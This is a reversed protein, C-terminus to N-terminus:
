NCREKKRKKKFSYMKEDAKDMIVKYSHKNNKDIKIVGHSISMPYDSSMEKLALDASIAKEAIKIDDTNKSIVFFEDGGIRCVFDDDDFASQLQQAVSQLYSDGAKHGFNDNAFKLGDLDILCCTFEAKEKILGQMKEVCFRRNYLNTLQDIYIMREMKDKYEKENTVDKIYHVYSLQDNWYITFSTAYLAVNSHQCYFEHFTSDEGDEIDLYTNMSFQKLFACEIGCNGHISDNDFFTKRASENMYIIDGNEIATVIVCDEIADMISKLLDISQSMTISQQKLMEERQALQKVMENFSRSFEGLFSVSQTYKGEAVQKTQWTLHKLKSHLDKLTSTVATYNKPPEVELQGETLSRLFENSEIFSVSLYELGSQLEDFDGAKLKIDEPIPKGLAIYRIQEVILDIDRKEM